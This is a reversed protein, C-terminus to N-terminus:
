GQSPQEWKEPMELLLFRNEGVGRISPDRSQIGSRLEEELDFVPVLRSEIRTIETLFNISSFSIQLYM